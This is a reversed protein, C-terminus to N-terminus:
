LLFLDPMLVPIANQIYKKYGAAFQGAQGKRNAQCFFVAVTISLEIIVFDGPAKIRGKM